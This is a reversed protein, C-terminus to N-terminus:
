KPFIDFPFIFALSTYLGREKSPHTKFVTKHFHMKTTQIADWNLYLEHLNNPLCPKNNVFVVYLM